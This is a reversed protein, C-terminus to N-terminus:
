NACFTQMFRFSVYMYANFLDKNQAFSSPPVTQNKSQNWDGTVLYENKYDEKIILQFLVLSIHHSYHCAKITM